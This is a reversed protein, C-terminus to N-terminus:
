ELKRMHHDITANLLFSSSSVGFVVRTFRMIIVDKQPGDADSVWLFQLADCDAPTVSIMLFAKEIDGVIAIKHVRFRILIDLISQGFKPGTYLCDNLLPGGQRASADYM